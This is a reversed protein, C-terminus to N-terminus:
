QHTLDDLSKGAADVKHKVFKNLRKNTKTHMAQYERSQSPKRCDIKKSITHFNMIISDISLDKKYCHPKSDQLHQLYRPIYHVLLNLKDLHYMFEIQEEVTHNKISSYMMGKSFFFIDLDIQERCCLVLRLVDYM